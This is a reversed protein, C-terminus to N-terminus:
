WAEQMYNLRILKVQSILKILNGFHGICEQGILFLWGFTLWYEHNEYWHWM